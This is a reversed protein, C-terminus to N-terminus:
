LLVELKWRKDPVVNEILEVESESSSGELEEAEEESSIERTTRKRPRRKPKKAIPTAEATRVVELAEPTSYIFEGEM